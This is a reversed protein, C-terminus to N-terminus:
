ALRMAGHGRQAPVSQKAWAALQACGLAARVWSSRAGLGALMALTESLARTTQGAAGGDPKNEHVMFAALANKIPRCCRRRAPSRVRASRADAIAAPYEALFIGVRPNQSGYTGLEEFFHTTRPVTLRLQIYWQMNKYSTTCGGHSTLKSKCFISFVNPRLSVEQLKTRRMAHIIARNPALYGSLAM